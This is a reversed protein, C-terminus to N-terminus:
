RVRAFQYRPTITVGSTNQGRIGVILEDGNVQYVLSGPVGSGGPPCTAQLTLTNGMATINGAFSLPIERAVRIGAGIVLTLGTNLDVRLSNDTTWVQGRGNIGSEALNIMGAGTNATDLYYTVRRLEWRGAPLPGGTLAPPDGVVIQGSGLALNGMAGTEACAGPTYPTEPGVNIAEDCYRTSPPPTVYAFNFCMEDATRSGSRVPSATPNNFNCRTIIRDGENFTYPLEYFLQSEFQWGQLAVMPETSGSRRRITEEFTTGVVHMHPMGALMRSGARLTCASEARATSRAPITFGVPGIAVMGYETGTAPAHYLRVGSNDSIGERMTGNNYHIQMVLRQGPTVRLGGEPFQLANEGPAWAYLYQSGEPMDNCRFPQTPANQEPDRLLVVHHLVESRDIIMEFRRIFRDQTVPVTFTFCQYLDRDNVGVAWNNARIDFSELGAPPAEPSRFRPASARLGMGPAPTQAGCSAWQVISAAVDDTPAPTGAPPMTHAMMRAVMRDVRRSGAAGAVNADYDLLSHPAGFQPSAAHCNGCQRQVQARVTAEWAARDPVCVGPGADVAGDRAADSVAADNSAAPPTSAGCGALTAAIVWARPGLVKTM